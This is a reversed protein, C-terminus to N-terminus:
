HIPGSHPWTPHDHSIGIQGVYVRIAWNVPPLLTSKKGTTANGVTQFGGCISHWDYDADQKSITDRRGRIHPALDNHNALGVCVSVSIATSRECAHQQGNREQQEGEEHVGAYRVQPVHVALRQHAVHQTQADTVGYQRHHLQTDEGAQARGAYDGPVDNVERKHDAKEPQIHHREVNVPGELLHVRQALRRRPSHKISLTISTQNEGM